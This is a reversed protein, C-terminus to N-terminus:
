ALEALVDDLTARATYTGRLWDARDRTWYHAAARDEAVVYAWACPDVFLFCRGGRSVTLQHIRDLILAASYQPDFPNIVTCPTPARYQRFPTTERV